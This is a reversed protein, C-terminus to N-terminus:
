RTFTNANETCSQSPSKRCLLLKRGSPEEHVAIEAFHRRLARIFGDLTYWSHEDRLWSVVFRDERPVFEIISVRKTYLSITKAIAEFSMRKKFVLHHVIALVLTTDCRLRDIASPIRLAVGYAPTPWTFDIILPLIPLSEADAEQFLRCISDDDLDFAVCRHGLSAALKTYWGKNCAMDLLTGPPLLKLLNYVALNKGQFNGPEDIKPMGGQGYGSWFSSSPEIKLNVLYQLLEQLIVEVPTRSLRKYMRYVPFPFLRFPWRSSRKQLIARRSVETYLARGLEHKGKSLLWLPLVSQTWFARFWTKLKVSRLSVISGIDVWVPKTYDFLVNGPETDKTFLGRAALALNFRCIFTTAEKIMISSWESWVSPFEVTRHHLILGYGDVEIDAVSTEILGSRFLDVVSGSSLLQRYFDVYPHSIARYVQDNFRFVHGASDVGAELKIDEAAVKM